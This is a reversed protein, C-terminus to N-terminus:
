PQEYCGCKPYYSLQCWYGYALLLIWTTSLFFYGHYILATYSCSWALNMRNYFDLAAHGGRGCIQYLIQSSSPFTAPNPAMSSSSADGLFSSSVGSSSSPATGVVSTTSFSFSGRGGHFSSGGFFGHSGRQGFSGHGRFGGRGHSAVM